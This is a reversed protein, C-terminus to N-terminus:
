PLRRAHARGQGGAERRLDASDQHLQNALLEITLTKIQEITRAPALGVAAM